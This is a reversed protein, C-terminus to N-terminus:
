VKKRKGYLDTKAGYAKKVRRAFKVVAEEFTRGSCDLNIDHQFSKYEKEFPGSELWYEIITNKKENDNIRGTKPSVKAMHIDLGSTAWPHNDSLWHFAKFAKEKNM